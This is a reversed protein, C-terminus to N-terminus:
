QVTIIYSIIKCHMSMYIYCVNCFRGFLTYKDKHTSQHLGTIANILALKASHTCYELYHDLLSLDFRNTVSNLARTFQVLGAVLTPSLSPL